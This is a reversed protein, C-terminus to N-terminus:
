PQLKSLLVLLSVEPKTVLDLGVPVMDAQPPFKRSDVQATAKSYMVLMNRRTPHPLATQCLSVQLARASPSLKTDALSQEM